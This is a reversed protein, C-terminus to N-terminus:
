RRMKSIEVAEADSFVPVANSKHMTAIGVISNGTYVKDPVKFANGVGSNLSKAMLRPDRDAPITLRYTTMPKFVQRSKTEPVGWRTKLDKWSEINQRASQASESNRFKKKGKRQGTTSLWPGEIHFAMKRIRYFNKSTTLVSMKGFIKM